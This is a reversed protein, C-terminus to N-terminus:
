QYISITNSSNNLTGDSFDYKDIILVIGISWWIIMFVTIILKDHILSYIFLATSGCLDLIGIFKYYHSYRHHHFLVINHSISLCTWGIFELIYSYYDNIRSYEIKKILPTKEDNTDFDMVISPSTDYSFNVKKKNNM